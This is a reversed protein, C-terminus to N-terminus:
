CVGVWSRLQAAVDDLQAGKDFIGDAGLGDATQRLPEVEQGTLILVKCVQGAQRMKKLVSFGNGPNLSVDLLVIDPQLKAVLREAEDESAAIGALSAGQVTELMDILCGQITVSDEVILVKVCGGDGFVISLM